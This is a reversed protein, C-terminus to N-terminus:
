LAPRALYSPDTRVAHHPRRRATYLCASTRRTHFLRFRWGRPPRFHALNVKWIPPFGPLPPSFAELLLSQQECRALGRDYPNLLM